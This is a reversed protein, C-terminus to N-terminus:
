RLSVVRSHFTRSPTRLRVFYVGAKVQHGQGDRGDWTLTHEGAAHKGAALTRVSRGTVDFLELQVDGERALGFRVTARGLFPNPTPSALFDVAVAGDIGAARVAGAGTTQIRLPSAESWNGTGDRGRVWYTLEGSGVSATALPASAQVTEGGFTGSMPIGTGADLPTAGVSYEAGAM